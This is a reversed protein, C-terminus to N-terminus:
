DREPGLAADLLSGNALDALPAETGGGVELAEGVLEIWGDAAALSM